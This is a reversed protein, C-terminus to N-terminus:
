ADELECLLGWGGYFPAGAKNLVDCRSRAEEETLLYVQEEGEPRLCISHTITSPTSVCVRERLENNDVSVSISEVKGLYRPAYFANTDQDLVGEVCLPCDIIVRDAGTIKGTGGCFSCPRSHEARHHEAVWLKDGLNLHTEIRM